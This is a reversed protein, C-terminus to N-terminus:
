SKKRMLTHPINIPPPCIGRKVFGRESLYTDAYISMFRIDVSVSVNCCIVHKQYFRGVSANHGIILNGCQSNSSNTLVSASTQNHLDTISGSKQTFVSFFMLFHCCIVCVCLMIFMREQLRLWSDILFIRAWTTGNQCTGSRDSHIIDRVSWQPSIWHKQFTIICKELISFMCEGGM